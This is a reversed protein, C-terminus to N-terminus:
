EGEKRGKKWVKEKEKKGSEKLFYWTITVLYVNSGKFLQFHLVTWDSHFVM